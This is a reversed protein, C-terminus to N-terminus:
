SEDSFNVCYLPVLKIFINGLMCSHRDVGTKYNCRDRCVYFFVSRGLAHMDRLYVVLLLSSYLIFSKLFDPDSKILVTM